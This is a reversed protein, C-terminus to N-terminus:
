KKRREIVGDFAGASWYVFDDDVAIGLPDETEAVLTPAGGAHSVRYVRDATGAVTTYYLHTADVALANAYSMDAPTTDVPDVATVFQFTEGTSPDFRVVIGEGSPDSSMYIFSGHRVWARIGHHGVPLQGAGVPTPSPVLATDGALAVLAGSGQVMYLNEDDGMLIGNTTVGPVQEKSTGDVPVRFLNGDDLFYLFGAVVHLGRPTNGNLEGELGDVVLVKATPPGARPTRWLRDVQATRAEVFFVHTDTFAMNQPREVAAALGALALPSTTSFRRVSGNSTGSDGREVFTVYGDDVFMPGPNRLNAFIPNTTCSNQVCAGDCVVGCNGCHNPHTPLYECAGDDDCDAFDQEACL